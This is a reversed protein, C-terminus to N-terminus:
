GRKRGYVNLKYWIAGYRGVYCPRAKRQGDVEPEEKGVASQHILQAAIETRRRQMPRHSRSMELRDDDEDAGAGIGKDAVALAEVADHDGGGELM